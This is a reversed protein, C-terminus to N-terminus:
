KLANRIIERTEEPVDTRSTKVLMRADDEFVQAWLAWLEPTYVLSEGSSARSELHEALATRYLGETRSGADAAEAKNWRIAVALSLFM